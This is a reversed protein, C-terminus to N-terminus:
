EQIINIIVYPFLREKVYGVDYLHDYFVDYMVAMERKEKSGNIQLKIENTGNNFIGYPSYLPKDASNANYHGNEYPPNVFYYTFEEVSIKYEPGVFAPCFTVESPLPIDVVGKEPHLHNFVKCSGQPNYKLTLVGGQKPMRITPHVGDEVSIEINSEVPFVNEVNWEIEGGGVLFPCPGYYSYFEPKEQMNDEFADYLDDSCSQLAALSLMLAIMMLLKKM